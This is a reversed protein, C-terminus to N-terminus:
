FQIYIFNEVGFAGYLFIITIAGIYTAWRLATPLKESRAFLDGRAHFFEFLFMILVAVGFSIWNSDTMGLRLEKISSQMGDFLHAYAYFADGVEKVRFLLLSLAFLLYTRLTMLWAWAKSGM